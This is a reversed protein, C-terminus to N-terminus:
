LNQRGEDCQVDVPDVKAGAAPRRVPGTLGIGQRRSKEAQPLLCSFLSACRACPNDAIRRAGGDDEAASDSRHRILWGGGAVLALLAAGRALAALVGRRGSDPAQRERAPSPREQDALQGQVRNIGEPRKM